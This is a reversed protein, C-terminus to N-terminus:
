DDSWDLYVGRPKRIIDKLTAALGPQILQLSATIDAKHLSSPSLSPLWYITHVSQKKRLHEAPSAKYGVLGPLVGMRYPQVCVQAGKRMHTCTGMHMHVLQRFALRCYGTRDRKERMSGRRQKWWQRWTTSHSVWASIRQINKAVKTTMGLQTRITNTHCKPPVCLTPTSRM